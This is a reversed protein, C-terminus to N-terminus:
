NPYGPPASTTSPFLPSYAAAHNLVDNGTGNDWNGPYDPFAKIRNNPYPTLTTNKRDGPYYMYQTTGPAAVPNVSGIYGGYDISSYFPPPNTGNPSPVSTNDPTDNAGPGYRAIPSGQFLQTWETGAYLLKSANVEWPGWGQNSFHPIPNATNQPNGANMINGHAYLNIKNDLDVILPAFLPKYLKGNPATLVQFGLDMWISDNNYYSPTPPSAGPRLYRLGPGWELNKVDVGGPTGPPSGPPPVIESDPPAFQSHYSIHPRLTSYKAWPDNAGNSSFDVNLWPRHFSPILVEGDANVAALFMNNLDPYTWSVNGGVYNGNTDNEPDRVKPLGVTPSTLLTGNPSYNQYNIALMNNRTTGFTPHKVDWRMRGMGNFPVINLDTPNAGYMTRALSHGRMASYVNDTDYILQSLFFSLLLEPDVDAQAQTQAQSAYRSAVAEAEAYVVFSLAVTAFLALMAIVVLLVIGQRKETRISPIKLM